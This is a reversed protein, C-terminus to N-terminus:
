RVQSGSQAHATGVAAPQDQRWSLWSQLFEVAPYDWIRYIKDGLLCLSSWRTKRLFNSKRKVVHTSEAVSCDVGHIISAAYLWHEDCDFGRKVAHNLWWIHPWYINPAGSRRGCCGHNLVKIFFDSANISSANIIWQTARITATGTHLPLIDLTLFLGTEATSVTSTTDPASHLKWYWDWYSEGGEPTQSFCSNLWYWKIM